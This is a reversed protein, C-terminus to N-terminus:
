KARAKKLGFACLALGFLLALGAAPAADGTKPVDVPEDPLDGEEPIDDEGEDPTEDPDELPTNETGDQVDGEEPIEGPIVEEPYDEIDEVYTLNIEVIAVNEDYIYGVGEYTGVSARYGSAGANEGAWVTPLVIGEQLTGIVEGGEEGAYIPVPGDESWVSNFSYYTGTHDARKKRAISGKANKKLDEARVYGRRFYSGDGMDLAVCIWEDDGFGSYDPHYCMMMPDGAQVTVFPTYGSVTSGEPGVDYPSESVAAYVMTKRAAEVLYFRAGDMGYSIWGPHLTEPLDNSSADPLPEDTVEVLGTAAAGALFPVALCLVACLVALMKKLYRM